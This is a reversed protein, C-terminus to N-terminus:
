PLPVNKFSFRVPWEIIAAPTRYTLRWDAPLAHGNRPRFHYSLVARRPTSSELVYETSSARSKGDPSVLALENNVVWSQYSELEKNGAPYDLIVQVTWHDPALNVKGIQCTVGERTQQLQAAGASTRALQTPPEFTFQLMHTPAVVNLRGEFLGISQDTRPLAPLQIETLISIRGDVAAPASGEDPTAVPRKHEDLIRMDQPRTELLLPQLGPEWAVELFLTCGAAGSELDRSAVIKKLACRFFGDYSLPPRAPTRPVLTIRGSRPYLYVSAGAAEAIRDLAQWFPVRDCQVTIQTDGAGRHDEVRIGTQKTLEALAQSLPVHDAQLTFTRPRPVQTNGSAAVALTAALWWASRM